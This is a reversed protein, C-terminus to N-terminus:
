AGFGPTCSMVEVVIPGLYVVRMPNRVEDEM